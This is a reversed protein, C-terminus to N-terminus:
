LQLERYESPTLGELKRFNRTLSPTNNYGVQDAIEAVSLDRRTCLLEKARAVRQGNMYEAITQDFRAHFMRTLRQPSVDVAECIASVNLNHDSIHEIMYACASRVLENEDASVEEWESLKSFWTQTLDNLETVSSARRFQRAVAASDLGEVEVSLIGEALVGCLSTLRSTALDYDRRLSSIHTNVVAQVLEPVQQYKHALLTNLLMQEQRVFDVAMAPASGTQRLADQQVVRDTCNSLDAFAKLAHTAHFADSLATVEHCIGSVMAQISINYSELLIDIAKECVYGVCNRLSEEEGWFVAILCDTDCCSTFSIQDDLLGELASQLILQTLDTDGTDLATGSRNKLFFTAVYYPGSFPQPIGANLIFAETLLATDHGYLIYRLNREQIAKQQSIKQKQYDQLSKRIEPIVAAYAAEGSYDPLADILAAIEGKQRASIQHLSLFGALLVIAAYGLFCCVIMILPQQYRANSVAVLFTYDEMDEYFCTVPEGVLQAVAGTDRWDFDSSVTQFSSSIAFQEDFICCLAADLTYINRLFTTMDLTVIVTGIVEEQEGDDISLPTFYYPTFSNTNSFQWSSGNQDTPYEWGGAEVGIKALLAPLSEMTFYGEDSYIRDHQNNIIYVHNVYSSNSMAIQLFDCFDQTAVEEASAANMNERFIADRTLSSSFLHMERLMAISQTYFQSSTQEAREQMQSNLVGRVACFLVICMLLPLLILTAYWRLGEWRPTRQEFLKKL